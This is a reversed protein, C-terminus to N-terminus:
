AALASRGIVQDGPVAYSGVLHENHPHLLIVRDLVVTTHGYNTFQDFGFAWAQSGPGCNSGTRIPGHMSSGSSVSGDDAPGSSGGCGGLASALVVSLALAGLTLARVRITRARV